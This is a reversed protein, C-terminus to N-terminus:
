CTWLWVALILSLINIKFAAPSYLLIKYLPIITHIIALKKNGILGSFIKVSIFIEIWSVYMELIFTFLSM